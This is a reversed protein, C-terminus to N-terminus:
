SSRAITWTSVRSFGLQAFLSDGAEEGDLVYFRCDPCESREVLAAVMGKALGRGRRSAEVALGGIMFNDGYRAASNVHAVLVGREKLLLHVGEGSAIRQALMERDGYAARLHSFSMLFRHIEDVDGAEACAVGEVPEFRLDASRLMRLASVRKRWKEESLDLAEILDSRGMVTRVAAFEPAECLEPLGFRGALILSSFYFLGVGEIGGDSNEEVYVTVNRGSVGYLALDALVFLSNAVDSRLAAELAEEDPQACRRIVLM